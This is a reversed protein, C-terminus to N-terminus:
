AEREHAEFWPGRAMTRAVAEAGTASSSSTEPDNCHERAQAYTLGTAVIERDYEDSRYFRIISYTAEPGYAEPDDDEEDDEDSDSDFPIEADKLGDAMAEVVVGTKSLLSPAEGWQSWGFDTGIQFHRTTGDKMTITGVISEVTESPDKSM